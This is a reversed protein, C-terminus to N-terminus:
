SREHVLLPDTQQHLTGTVRLRLSESDARVTSPPPFPSPSHSHCSASSVLRSPSEFTSSGSGRRLLSSFSGSPLPPALEEEWQCRARWVKRYCKSHTARPEADADSTM